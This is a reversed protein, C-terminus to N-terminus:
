LIVKDCEDRDMKIQRDKATKLTSNQHEASLEKMKNKERKSLAM